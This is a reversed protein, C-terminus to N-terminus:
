KKHRPALREHCALHFVRKSVLGQKEPKRDDSLDNDPSEVLSFQALNTFFQQRLAHSLLDYSSNLVGPMDPRKIEHASPLSGGAASM